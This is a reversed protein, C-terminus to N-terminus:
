LQAVQVAANAALLAEARVLIQMILGSECARDIMGPNFRDGRCIVTLRRHLQFPTADRFADPEPECIAGAGIYRARRQLAESYSAEADVWGTEYLRAIFRETLFAPDIYGDDATGLVVGATRFLDAYEALVELRGRIIEPPDLMFLWGGAAAREDPTATRLGLPDRGPPAPANSM